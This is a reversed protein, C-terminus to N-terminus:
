KTLTMVNSNLSLSFSGSLNKEQLRNGLASFM